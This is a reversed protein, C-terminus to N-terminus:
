IIITHLSSFHANVRCSISLSALPTNINKNNCINYQKQPPQNRSSCLTCVTLKKFCQWSRCGFKTRKFFFFNGSRFKLIHLDENKYSKPTKVVNTQIWDLEFMCCRYLSTYLCKMSENRYQRMILIRLCDSDVINLTFVLSKTHNAPPRFFCCKARIGYNFESIATTRKQPKSFDIVARVYVSVRKYAIFHHRICVACSTLLCFFSNPPVGVYM